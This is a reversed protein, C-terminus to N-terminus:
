KLHLIIKEGKLKTPSTKPVEIMRIVESIEDETQLNHEHPVYVPDEDSDDILEDGMGSEEGSDNEFLESFYL